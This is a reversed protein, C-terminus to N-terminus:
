IFGAVIVVDFANSHDARTQLIMFLYIATVKSRWTKPHNTVCYCIVCIGPNIMWKLVLEKM